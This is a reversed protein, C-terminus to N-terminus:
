SRLALRAGADTTPQHVRLPDGAVIRGPRGLHVPRRDSALAGPGPSPQQGRDGRVDGVLRQERGALEARDRGRGEDDAAVAVRQHGDPLGPLQRALDAVARQEDGRVAAMIHQGAPGGERELRDAAEVARGVPPSRRRGARGIVSTRGIVM